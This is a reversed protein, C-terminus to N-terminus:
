IRDLWRAIDKVLQTNIMQLLVGFSNIRLTMFLPLAVFKLSNVHIKWFEIWTIIINKFNLHIKIKDNVNM